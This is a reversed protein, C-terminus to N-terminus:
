KKKDDEAIGWRDKAYKKLGDEDKASFHKQKERQRLKALAAGQRRRRGHQVAIVPTAIALVIAALLWGGVCLGSSEALDKVSHALGEPAAGLRQNPPLLAVWGLYIALFAGLAIGVARWDTLNRLVDRVIGLVALLVRLWEPDGKKKEGAM